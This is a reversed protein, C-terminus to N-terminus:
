RPRGHDSKDATPIADGVRTGQTGLEQTIPAHLAEDVQIVKGGEKLVLSYATFVADANRSAGYQKAMSINETPIFTGIRSGATRDDSGSPAPRASATAVSAM